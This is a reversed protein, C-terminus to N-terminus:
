TFFRLSKHMSPVPTVPKEPTTPAMGSAHFSWAGIVLSWPGCRTMAGVQAGRPPIKNPGLVRRRESAVALRALVLVFPLPTERIGPMSVTAGTRDYASHQGDTLGM